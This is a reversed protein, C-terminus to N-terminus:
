HRHDRRDHHDHDRHHDNYRGHHEDHRDEHHRWDHRDHHGWNTHRLDWYAERGREHRRHEARRIHDHVWDGHARWRFDHHRWHRFADRHRWHRWDDRDRFIFGGRAYMSPGWYYELYSYCRRPAPLEWKRYWWCPANDHYYGDFAPYGLGISFSFGAMAPTATLAMAGGMVFAAAYIKALTKM